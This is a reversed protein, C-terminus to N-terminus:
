PAGPGAPGRRLRAAHGKLAGPIGALVAAGVFAAAVLTQSAGVPLNWLFACLYGLFGSVAGIGAALWLSWRVSPALRTAATAPLVSLAFVPLAGIVRTAVSISLALSGFLVFRLAGVPLGRVRAADPQFAAQALGRAGWAHVALVLAAVSALLHFDGPLVAVATGFLLSQIDHVEAAIRTGLALTGAAGVLYAFGLIAGRRHGVPSRDALLLLTAVGTMAVSGLWPSGLGGGALGAVGQLWFAVAIGLGAAQSLAASLFVMRGLVVYVGLWGLLAGAVTGALAPDRFLDWAEFFQAVTQAEDGNM